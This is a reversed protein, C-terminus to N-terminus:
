QKRQVKVGINNIEVKFENNAREGQIEIVAKQDRFLKINM